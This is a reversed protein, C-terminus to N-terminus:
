RRTEGPGTLVKTIERSLRELETLRRRMDLSEARASALEADAKAQASSALPKQKSM